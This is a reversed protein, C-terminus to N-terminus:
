GRPAARRRGPAPDEISRSASAEAMARASSAHSRFRVWARRRSAWVHCRRVHGLRSSALNREWAEDARAIAAALAEREILIRVWYVDRLEELSM